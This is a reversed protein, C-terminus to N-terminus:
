AVLLVPAVIARLLLVLIVLVVALVIPMVLRNDAASAQQSDYNVATAGGVMANAGPVAHAAERLALITHKAASTDAPNALEADIEVLGAARETVQPKGQLGPVKAIAATVADASGENAIVVAPAATAGGFHAAMVAEGKISDPK